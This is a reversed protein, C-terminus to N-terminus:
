SAPTVITGGFYAEDAHYVVGDIYVKHSQTVEDAGTGDEYQALFGGGMSDNYLKIPKGTADTARAVDNRCVYVPYRPNAEVPINCVPCLQQENM